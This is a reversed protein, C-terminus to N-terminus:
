RIMDMNARAKLQDETLKADDIKVQDKDDEAKHASVGSILCLITILLWALLSRRM